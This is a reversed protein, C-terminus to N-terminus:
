IFNQNNNQELQQQIENNKLLAFMNVSSCNNNKHIQM